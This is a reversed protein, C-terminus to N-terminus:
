KRGFLRQWFSKKAPPEPEVPVEEIAEIAKDGEKCTCEACGCDEGELLEGKAFEVERLLHALQDRDIGGITPRHDSFLSNMQEITLRRFMDQGDLLCHLGEILDPDNTPEREALVEDLEDPSINCPDAVLEEEEKITLNDFPDKGDLLALVKEPGALAMAMGLAAVAGGKPTASKAVANPKVSPKAVPENVSALAPRVVPPHAICDEPVTMGHRLYYRRRNRRQRANGGHISLIRKELKSM